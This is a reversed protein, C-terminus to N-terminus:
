SNKEKLEENHDHLKDLRKYLEDIRAEYKFQAKNWGDNFVKELGNRLEKRWHEWQLSVLQSFGGGRTNDVVHRAFDLCARCKSKIHLPLHTKEEVSWTSLLEVFIADFDIDMSNHPSNSRRQSGSSSEIVPFSPERYNLNPKDPLKDRESCRDSM